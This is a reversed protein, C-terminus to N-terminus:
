NKPNKVALALNYLFICLRGCHEFRTILDQM